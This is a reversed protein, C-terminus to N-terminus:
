NLDIGPVDPLENDTFTGNDNRRITKGKRHIYFSDLGSPFLWNQGVKVRVFPCIHYYERKEFTNMPVNAEMKFNFLDPYGAAYSSSVDIEKWDSTINGYSDCKAYRFGYTIEPFLSYSFFPKYKNASLNVYDHNPQIKFDSFDSVFLSPYRKENWFYFPDSDIERQFEELKLAFPNYVKFYGKAHVQVYNKWSCADSFHFNSHDWYSENDNISIGVSAEAKRNVDAWLDIGLLDAWTYFSADSNSIELRAIYNSGNVGVSLKLGASAKVYGELSFGGGMNDFGHNNNVNLEKINVYHNGNYPRIDKAADDYMVGLNVSYIEHIPEFSFVAKGDAEFSLYGSLIPTVVIPTGPIPIHGYISFLEYKKEFKGKAKITADLRVTAELGGNFQAGLLKVDGDEIKLRMKINDPIIKIEPTLSFMGAKLSPIPITWEKRQADTLEITNGENDTVGDIIIDNLNFSFEKDINKLVENIAAKATKITWIWIKIDDWSRTSLSETMMTVETVRLMFGYPAYKTSGSCLFDGVKPVKAETTEIVMTGDKDISTVAIGSEETNTMDIVQPEGNGDGLMLKEGDWIAFMAYSHNTQLTIDSSIRNISRVEKGDVDAILQADKILNGNPVYISYFSVANKETFVPINKEVSEAEGDESKVVKGNDINVEAYNYYWKKQADFGKHKFKIPAGSKNIVFLIEGTGAMNDNAKQPISSSSIKLWSSFVGKRSMNKKYYVNGDEWRYSGGIIYLELPNSTSLKDTADVEIRCEKGSSSLLTADYSGLDVIKGNQKALIRKTVGENYHSYFKTDVQSGDVSSELLTSEMEPSVITLAFSLETPTPGPTPEPDPEDSGKSCAVLIFLMASFIQLIFSTKGSKFFHMFM